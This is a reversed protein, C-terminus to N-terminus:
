FIGWSRSIEKFWHRIGQGGGGVRYGAAHCGLRVKGKKGKGEGCRGCTTQAFRVDKWMDDKLSFVARPSMLRLQVSNTPYREKERTKDKSQM